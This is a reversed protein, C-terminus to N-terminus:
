QIKDDMMGFVLRNQIMVELTAGFNCNESVIRLETVYSAVIESPKRFCFKYRQVIEGPKPAHHNQVLNVLEAFSKTGPEDPALLDSMLKYIKNGCVSLLISPRKGLDAPETDGIGNAYFYDCLRECYYKM